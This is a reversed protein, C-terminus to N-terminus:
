KFFKEFRKNIVHFMKATKLFTFWSEDHVKHHWEESFYHIKVDNIIRKYAFVTENDYNFIRQINSPYMSYEDYKLETMLELVREFDGFYDFKKIMDSSAVMIGTNFVDTDPEYGEETLMAHCNWYKSSPNRICTNYWKVEVNKGWEAEKNSTACGFSDKPVVDFISEDTNPIVDFDIYCVEDYQQAHRIMLEQKYFNIIDYVSIMPYKESFYKVFEEYKEDYGHLIYDAGISEAYEEHRKKIRDHYKIFYDKTQKSKDTDQKIGAKDYWGPNDLDKNPIDIFISYIVQTM